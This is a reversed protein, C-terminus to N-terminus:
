NASRQNNCFFSVNKNQRCSKIISSTFFFHREPYIFSEYALVYQPTKKETLLKEFSGEIHLLQILWEIVFQSCQLPCYTLEFLCHDYIKSFEGFPGRKLKTALEHSDVDTSHLANNGFYKCYAGASITDAVNPSTILLTTRWCSEIVIQM